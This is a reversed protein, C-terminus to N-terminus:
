NDLFVKKEYFVKGEFLYMVARLSIDTEHTTFSLKSFQAIFKIFNILNETLFCFVNKKSPSTLISSKKNILNCHM